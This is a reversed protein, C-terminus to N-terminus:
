INDEPTMDRALGEGGSFLCPCTASLDMISSPFRGLADPERNRPTEFAESAIAIPGVWSFGEPKPALALPIFIRGCLEYSKSIQNHTGASLRPASIEGGEGPSSTLTILLIEPALPRTEERDAVCCGGCDDCGERCLM